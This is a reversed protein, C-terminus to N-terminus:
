ASARVILECPLSQVTGEAYGNEAKTDIMRLAADVMFDVPQRITTLQYSNWRAMPIDDFGCVAIDTPVSIRHERAADLAALAMIDNCCFLADPRKSNALLRHVADYAAHYSFAGSVEYHVAHGLEDLADFFGRTRERNTSTDPLGSVFGIRKSGRNVLLRAAERGGAYNDCTVANLRMDPQTRNFLVVRIGHRRCADAMNSTLLASTVIVAKPRATLIQPTITDINADDPAAYVLLQRGSSQLKRALRELVMPYFPNSLDGAVLTVTGASIAEGTRRAPSSYGLRDAITLIRQRKAEDISGHPSFARSVASISVGAAHAVQKATPKTM